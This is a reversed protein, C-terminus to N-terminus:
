KEKRFEALVTQAAEGGIRELATVLHPAVGQWGERRALLREGILPVAREDRLRALGKAAAMFLGADKESHLRSLLYDRVDKTDAVALGELVSWSALNPLDDRAALELLRQEDGKAWCLALLDPTRYHHHGLDILICLARFGESGTKALADRCDAAVLGPTGLEAATARLAAQLAPEGVAATFALIRMGETVKTSRVDIAAPTTPRAAPRGTLGLLAPSRPLDSQPAAAVNANAPPPLGGVVKARRADATLAITFSATLDGPRETPEWMVKVQAFHEGRDQEFAYVLRTERVAGGVAVGGVTVDAIHDNGIPIRAHVRKAMPRGWRATPDSCQMFLAHSPCSAEVKIEDGQRTWRIQVPAEEPRAVFPVAAPDGFLIGGTAGELMMDRVPDSVPELKAGDGIPALDLRPVGFGIYGLVTKDYDRRRAEGLSAGHAILQILDTDLEPGAPRPCLYATYGLVGAHLLALGFSDEPAVTRRVWKRSKWDAEYWDRTVGTYCAVNLVVAGDLRLAALDKADPGGVVHQPMGHGIFTVASTKELKPLLDALFTRDHEPFKKGGQVHAQICPLQETRLRYPTERQSSTDAGGCVQALGTVPRPKNARAAATVLALADDPTRGTIYGYEFDVFPDDDVETAMQLFARQLAFDLQDPRLVIAVQRPPEVRFAALVPALDQPDFERVLALREAALREAVARYPDGAKTSCLVVYHQTTAAASLTLACVQVLAIRM